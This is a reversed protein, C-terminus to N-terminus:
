ILNDMICLQSVFGTDITNNGGGSFNFGDSFM